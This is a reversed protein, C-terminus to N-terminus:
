SQGQATIVSGCEPCVRSANGTLDYGCKPCHGPSVARREESWCRYAFYFWVTAFTIPALPPVYVCWRTLLTAQAAPLHRPLVFRVAYLLGHLDSNAALVWVPLLLWARIRGVKRSFYLRAFLAGSFLGVCTLVFGPNSPRSDAALLWLVALVCLDAWGLRRYLPLAVVALILGCILTPHWM